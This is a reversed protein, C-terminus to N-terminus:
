LLIKYKDIIYRFHPFKKELLDLLVDRMGNNTNADIINKTATAVFKENINGGINKLINELNIEAKHKFWSKTDFHEITESVVWGIVKNKMSKNISHEAEIDVLLLQM